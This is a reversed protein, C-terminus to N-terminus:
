RDTGAATRDVAEATRDAVATHDVAAVTPDEAMRDVVVTRDAVAMPAEANVVASAAAKLAASAAAVSVTAVANGAKMDESDAMFSRAGASVVATSIAAASVKGVGAVTVMSDVDKTFDVDETTAVDGM